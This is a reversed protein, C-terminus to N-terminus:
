TFLKVLSLRHVFYKSPVIGWIYRVAVNKLAIIKTVLITEVIWNQTIIYFIAMVTNKNTENIFRAKGNEMNIGTHFKTKLVWSFEVSSFQLQLNNKLIKSCSDLTVTDLLLTGHSFQQFVSKCNLGKSWINNLHTCTYIWTHTIYSTKYAATEVQPSCFKKVHLLFMIYNIIMLILTSNWCITIFSFYINVLLFFSYYTVLLFNCTSLLFSRTVVLTILSLHFNVLLPYFTQGGEYCTVMHIDKNESENKCISKM